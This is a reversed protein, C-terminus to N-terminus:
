AAARRQLVRDAIQGIVSRQKASLKTSTLVNRLFGIEWPRLSGPQALCAGAQQRWPTVSNRNTESEGSHDLVDSWTLGLSRVFRDAARAAALAEGDYTSSILSLLKALRQRDVPAIMM